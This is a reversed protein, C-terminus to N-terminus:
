EERLTSDPNVGWDGGPNPTYPAIECIVRGTINKKEVQSIRYYITATIDICSDSVKSVNVIEAGLLDKVEYMGWMTQAPNPEISRWTIQTFEAMRNWDEDKWATLFEAFAREASGAPYSDVEVMPYSEPVPTPTPEPSPAPVPAPPPELLLPPPSRGLIERYRYQHYKYEGTKVEKAQAWDGYPAWDVAFRALWTYDDNYHFIFVVIANVRERNTINKVVDSAVREIEEKTLDEDTAVKVRKRITNAFSIDEEEVVTYSVPRPVSIDQASEPKQTPTAPESLSVGAIFSALGLVAIIGWIKLTKRRIANVILMIIGAILALFGIIGLAEM